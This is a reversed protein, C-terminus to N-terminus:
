PLLFPRRDFNSPTTLTTINMWATFTTAARLPPATKHQHASKIQTHIQVRPAIWPSPQVTTIAAAKDFELSLPQDATFDIFDVPVAKDSTPADSHPYNSSSENHIMTSQSTTPAPICRQHAKAPTNSYSSTHQGHHEKM